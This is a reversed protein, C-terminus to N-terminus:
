LSENTASPTEEVDVTHRRAEVARILGESIILGALASITSTFQFSLLTVATPPYLNAPVLWVVVIINMFLRWVCYFVLFAVIRVILNKGWRTERFWWYFVGIGLWVTGDVLGQGILWLVPNGAGFILARLIDGIWLTFFGVIPGFFVVAITAPAAPLDFLQFNVIGSVAFLAALFGIATYTYTSFMPYTKGQVYRGRPALWQEHAAIYSALLLATPLMLVWFGFIIWYLNRLPSQPVGLKDGYPATFIVAAIWVIIAAVQWIWFIRRNKILWTKLKM